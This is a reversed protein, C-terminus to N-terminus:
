RAASRRRLCRLEVWVEQPVTRLVLALCAYVVSAVVALVVDPVGSLLGIACAVLAAAFVRPVVRLSPRMTPHSHALWWGLLLLSLLDAALTGAAAGRAGHASGLILVLTCNSVLTALSIALMARHERLSLLAYAWSTLAFIAFVTVAQIRLVDASPGFDPGAVVEIAFDAGVVLAVATFGGMVLCVEFMRQVGYALRGHDDKAARAFIPFGATVLLQPVVVLVEVVRFPAAFYGTEQATAILSLLIIALRFYVSAIATAAAFPLIERLLSGWGARDFSPSIPIRGRVLRITLLLGVLAAPLPVGFFPLLRAGAVVLAVILAVTAVQRVLELLTVWGLRLEVMLEVGYTTQLNQVVLGAGALVAGMVLVSDYGALAAFAVAIAVGVTTLALRLGTLSRVLRDRDAGTRVALERMGVATLGFETLGQVTAILAIVTVYRGGDVVGLHRFLLAASVISLAVGASYGGVRLAGGRIAASGALPTGLLDDHEEEARATSDRAASRTMGPM